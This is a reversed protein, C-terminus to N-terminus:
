HARSWRLARWSAACSPRGSRRSRRDRTREPVAAPRQYRERQPVGPNITAKGPGATRRARRRARRIRRSGPEGAPAIKNARDGTRAPPWARNPQLASMGTSEPAARLPM